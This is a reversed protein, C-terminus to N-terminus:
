TIAGNRWLRLPGDREICDLTPLHYPDRVLFPYLVSADLIVTFRDAIHKM